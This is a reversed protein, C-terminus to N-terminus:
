DSREEFNDNGSSVIYDIDQEDFCNDRLTQKLEHIICEKRNLEDVVIIADELPSLSIDSDFSTKLEEKKDCITVCDNPYDKSVKYRM